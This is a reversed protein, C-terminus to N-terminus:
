GNGLMRRLVDEGQMEFQKIRSVNEAIQAKEEYPLFMGMGRSAEYQKLAATNILKGLINLKSYVTDFFMVVFKIETDTKVKEVFQVESLGYYLCWDGFLMITGDKLMHMILNYAKCYTVDLPKTYLTCDAACYSIRLSDRIFEVGEANQYETRIEMAKKIIESWTYHQGMEVISSPEYGRDRLTLKRPPQNTM